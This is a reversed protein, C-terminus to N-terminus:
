AGGGPPAKPRDNERQAKRTNKRGKEHHEDRSHTLVYCWQQHAPTAAGHVSVDDLVEEGLGGIPWSTRVEVHHHQDYRKQQDYERCTENVELSSPHRCTLGDDALLHAEGQQGSVKNPQDRQKIQRERDQKQKREIRPGTQGKREM